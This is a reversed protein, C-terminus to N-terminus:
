VYEKGAIEELLEPRGSRPLSLTHSSSNHAAGTHPHKMYSSHTDPRLALFYNPHPALYAIACYSTAGSTVSVRPRRRSPLRSHLLSDHAGRQHSHRAHPTTSALTISFTACLGRPVSRPHCRTRQRTCTTVLSTVGDEKQPTQWRL